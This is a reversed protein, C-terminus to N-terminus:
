KNVGQKRREEEKSIYRDKLAHGTSSDNRRILTM